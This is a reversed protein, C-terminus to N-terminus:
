TRSYHATDLVRYCVLLYLFFHNIEAGLFLGLTQLIGRRGRWGLLFHGELGNCNHFYSYELRKGTVATLRYGELTQLLIIGSEIVLHSSIASIYWLPAARVPQM